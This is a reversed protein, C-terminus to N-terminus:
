KATEAVSRLFNSLKYFSTILRLRVSNETNDREAVRHCWKVGLWSYPNITIKKASYKNQFFQKRTACIFRQANEYTPVLIVRYFNKRLCLLSIM